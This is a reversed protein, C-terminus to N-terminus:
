VTTRTTLDKLMTVLRGAPPLLIERLGGNEVLFFRINRFNGSVLWEILSRYKFQYTTERDTDSPLPSWDIIQSLLGTIFTRPHNHCVLVEANTIGAIHKQFYDICAPSFKVNHEAGHSIHIGYFQGPRRIDSGKRKGFATALYEIRHEKELFQWIGALTTHRGYGRTFRIFSDDSSKALKGSIWRAQGIRVSPISEIEPELLTLVKSTTVETLWDKLVASLARDERTM